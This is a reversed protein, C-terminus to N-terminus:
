PILESFSIDRVGKVTSQAEDITVAGQNEYLGFLEANRYNRLSHGPQPNAPLERYRLEYWAMARDNRSMALILDASLGGVGRYYAIDFVAMMETTGALRNLLADGNAQGLVNRFRNSILTGRYEVDRQFLIQADAESIAGFSISFEAILTDALANDSDNRARAIRQLLTNQADTLPRGIAAMDGNLQVAEYPTWGNSGLRVFTFGYGITPVHDQPQYVVARFAENGRVLQRLATFYNARLRPTFPM